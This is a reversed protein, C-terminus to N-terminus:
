REDNIVALVNLDNMLFYRQPKGDEDLDDEDLYMDSIHRKYYIHDGVKAWPDGGIYDAWAVPGVAVLTGKVRAVDEREAQQATAVILGSETKVEFKDPKVLVYSGCPEIPLKKKKPITQTQNM